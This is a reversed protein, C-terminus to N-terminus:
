TYTKFLHKENIKASKASTEFYFLESNEGNGYYMKYVGWFNQM